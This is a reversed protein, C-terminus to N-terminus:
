DIERRDLARRRSELDVLTALRLLGRRLNTSAVRAALHIPLALVGSGYGRQVIGSM